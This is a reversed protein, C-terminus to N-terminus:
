SSPSLEGDFERWGGDYPADQIWWLNPFRRFSRMMKKSALKAESFTPFDKSRYWRGRRHKDIRHAVVVFVGPRVKHIRCTPKVLEIHVLAM